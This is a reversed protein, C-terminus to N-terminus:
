TPSSPYAVNAPTEGLTPRAEDMSGDDGHVSAVAGQKIELECLMQRGAQLDRTEFGETFRSQIPALLHFAVDYAGRRAHIQALAIASRLYWSAASQRQAIRCSRELLRVARVENEPSVARLAEAQLRLLEPLQAAEGGRLAARRARRVVTVAEKARGVASLGEALFCAVSTGMFNLCEDGMKGELGLLIETGRETEGRGILTAGQMALATDHFPELVHWHTHAALQDLFEQAGDWDRRWLYMPTTFLLAFCTNLPKGSRLATDVSERAVKVARDPFGSLWLVRSWAVLARVRQDMGCMQLSRDGARAFGSKFHECAAAQDGLYHRSQGQLLDSIALCAVDNVQRAAVDWDAAADLSGRFDAMRTLVM